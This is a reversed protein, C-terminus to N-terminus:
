RKGRRTLPPDDGEVFARIAAGFYKPHRIALVGVVVAAGISTVPKSRVFDTIREGVSESEPKKKPKPPKALSALVFGILGIMIASALAVVAAAGSRGVYPEVLAYLAFALAVMVTGASASLAAAGALFFLLRRVIM